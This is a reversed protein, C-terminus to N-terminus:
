PIFLKNEILYKHAFGRVAFVDELLAAALKRNQLFGLPWM